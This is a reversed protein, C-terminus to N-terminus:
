TVYNFQLYPVCDFISFALYFSYSLDEVKVSKDLDEVLGVALRNPDASMRVSYRLSRIVIESSVETYM